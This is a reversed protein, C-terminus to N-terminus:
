QHKGKVVQLNKLTIDKDSIIFTAEDEDHSLRRFTYLDYRDYALTLNKCSLEMRMFRFIEIMEKM